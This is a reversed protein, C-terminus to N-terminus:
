HSLTDTIVTDIAHIIGNSTYVDFVVVKSGQILLEGGVIDISVDDHGAADAISGNLTFATVSDVAADRIVHQALLRQLAHKNHLLAELTNPPIKAFAADTPAFVTFTEHENSLFHVFGAAVVADVLQTFRGDQIATEVINLTAGTNEAPPILVKDLVHIVGNGAGINNDVVRSLNVYLQQGSLTLALKDGNAADVKKDNSGAIAIATEAPVAGSLVHYLLIDRLTDPDALLADITDQGLAAFAADTPAFVTYEQSLDDLVADLGTAKLAAVLTTFNGNGTAVDLITPEPMPIQVDGVIVKDIVHIIGNTTRIDTSIVQAGGVTLQANEIAIDITDGGVTTASQGNLTYAAVADVEADAIVHLKLIDALVDPNNLLTTLVGDPLMAFADDTPAFVTFTKQDDGLVADLGTAQLAAVLTTFNGAAVATDVINSVPAQSNDAPPLLVNDIVHIVGNDAMVNPGTVSSLNVFLTNDVFSLGINDSNATEVTSDNGNAVAIAADALIKADAIVHYLLIDSLKNPDALLADITDQGLKAFAADDPAFVTFNRSTDALVADLGTAQLAAVLTTFNGNGIAVDVISVLPAPLQVDDVVVTDIIHIVGNAAYIDTTTVTAGGFRLKGDSISVLIDNDGLTDVEVGNLSFAAISNVEGSVVHQRLIEALIDPNALLADINDKGLAAFANDTPAFVTFTSTTDALAADLGTAQLAAVLTTFNGANVAIDVITDNTATKITPPILVTDIVHIIGNDAKMDAKTVSSLNVRLIDAVKSVGVKQGNVMEVQSGAAASAAAADVEGAIAHYKLINALADPDNLLADITAQGLKQFAANTPAFLTFQSSSDALVVDLGTAKLVSVLTSLEGDTEALEVVTGPRPNDGGATSSDTAPASGGGGGCAILLSSVLMIFTMKLPNKM